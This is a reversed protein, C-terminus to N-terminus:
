YLRIIAKGIREGMGRSIPVVVGNKLIVSDRKVTHIDALNVVFSRQCRFFGDDLKKELDSLAAKIRYEGRRTHIVTYNMQAELYVIEPFPVYETQRNVSVTLRKETKGLNKAARDLVSFLKEDSIPKLLYHLAGVDYGQPMFDPYGTVFIIQAADNEERVRRALDVGNMEEMEIDLLLIDFAKNESYEFLFAEASPYARVDCLHGNRDAWATVKETLFVTQSREDDCVAIRMKM